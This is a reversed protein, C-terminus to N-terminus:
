PNEPKVECTPMEDGSWKLPDHHWVSHSGHHEQRAIQQRLVCEIEYVRKADMSAGGIGKHQNPSMDPTLKCRLTEAIQDALEANHPDSSHEGLIAEAVFRWHGMSTRQFLELARIMARAHTPTLTLQYHDSM